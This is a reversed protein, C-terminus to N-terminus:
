TNDRTTVNLVEMIKNYMELREPDLISKDLKIIRRNEDRRLGQAQSIMSTWGKVESKRGVDALARNLGGSYSVTYYHINTDFVNRVVGVDGYAGHAVYILDFRDIEKGFIDKM